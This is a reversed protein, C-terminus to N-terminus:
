FIYGFNTSFQFSNKQFGTPPNNIFNDSAGFNVTLRHFAPLALNLNGNASYANPNNWAPLVSGSETLVLKAPLDHRYTEAFTSGILNQNQSALTSNFQQKLYHVDLKLDLQQRTRQVPTWGFGAGYVQQLDLGLAFNHDIGLDGLAYFRPSFYRDHEFSTHFISTRAVSNPTAPSTQPVVPQTLKGYAENLNFVTRDHPPLFAVGPMARVLNLGATVTPGYSTAQVDSAGASANGKWGSLLSHRRLQRDFTAQDIVFGVNAEPVAVSSSVGAPSVVQLTADKYSLLGPHILDHAISPKIPVGKSIVAFSGHTQLERVNDLSVTLEGALDSRFTISNGVGRLLTGTLHDGNKFILVDPEAKIQASAYLSLCALLLISAQCGCGLPSRRPRPLSMFNAYGLTQPNPM